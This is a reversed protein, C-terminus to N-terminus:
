SLNIGRQIIRLQNLHPERIANGELDQIATDINRKARLADLEMSIAIAFGTEGSPSLRDQM